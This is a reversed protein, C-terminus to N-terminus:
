NEMLDISYIDSLQSALEMFEERNKDFFRKAQVRSIDDFGIKEAAAVICQNVEPIEELIIKTRSHNEDSLELSCLRHKLDVLPPLQDLVSESLYMQCKSIERQRFENIAYMSMADDNFLLQRLCFWTQAEVKTVKLVEDGTVKTWKDDIFLEIDDISRRWPQCHLIESLLCPVDHMQVMRRIANLPLSEIKDTMFSLITLCRMGTKYLLDRKQRQLENIASENVVKQADFKEEFHDSHVFGILHTIAQVCYDVLDMACDIIAVCGNEHYLCIELLSVVSAEHFLITYLFFTTNECNEMAVLRPFVKTRWVFICFAEHILDNLKDDVILLDKVVEERCASAELAAQQNLRLINAHSQLWLKNGIDVVAFRRISKVCVEIEEPAIIDNM